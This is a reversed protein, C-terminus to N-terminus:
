GKSTEYESIKQKYLVLLKEKKWTKEKYFKSNIFKLQNTMEEVQTKLQNKKNHLDKNITILEKKQENNGKIQNIVAQFEPDSFM